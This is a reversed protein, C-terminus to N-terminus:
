KVAKVIVVVLLVMAAASIAITQWDANSGPTPPPTYAAAEKKTQSDLLELAKIRSQFGFYADGLNKFIDTANQTLTALPGTVKEPQIAM